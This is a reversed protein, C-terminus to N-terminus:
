FARYRIQNFVKEATNLVMKFDNKLDLMPHPLGFYLPLLSAGKVAGIPCGGIRKIKRAKITGTVETCDGLLICYGNGADVDGEYIGTVIAGERANKLAGPNAADIMGFAGKVAAICGGYCIEGTNPGVGEYFRIPTDLQQIDQFESVIDKTREALEAISM